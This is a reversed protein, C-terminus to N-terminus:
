GTLLSSAILHVNRSTAGRNESISEKARRGMKLREESSSLLRECSEILEKEDKVLIAGKKNLLVNAVEQFNFVHPGFLLPKELSAPEIM